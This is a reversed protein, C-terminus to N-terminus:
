FNQFKNWTVNSPCFLGIKESFAKIVLELILVVYLNSVSSTCLPIKTDFYLEFSYIDLPNNTVCFPLITM